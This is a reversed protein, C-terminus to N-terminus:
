GNRQKPPKAPKPKRSKAPKRLYLWVWGHMHENGMKQPVRHDHFDGVLLDMAGDGNWDVVWPKARMACMENTRCRKEVFRGGKGPLLVVGQALRPVKRTGVNKFLIVSGRDDGVLLDVDGDGDWDAAHPGADGHPTKLPAGGAELREPRAFKAKKRTGNNRLLFVEGHRAGVLLDVDGDGDWDVAHCAVHPQQFAPQGTFNVLDTRAGFAVRTALGSWVYVRNDFGGSLM